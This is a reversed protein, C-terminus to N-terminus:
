TGHWDEPWRNKRYALADRILQKAAADLRAIGLYTKVFRLRETRTCLHAASKDLSALDKLRKRARWPSWRDFAGRPCDIWWLQAAGNKSRSVLINRWVLDHHFFNEGHIRRTWRALQEILTAREHRTARRESWFEVLTKAGAIARTVIFARRLRGLADREEGCAVPEACAIGLRAFTAYNQFEGRAKSPRGLFKWAPRRYEYQKYFVELTGGGPLPMQTLRVIVTTKAPPPSELFRSAAAPVSDVGLAKWASEYTAATEVMRRLTFLLPCRPLGHCESATDQHSIRFAANVRCFSVSRAASGGLPPTGEM